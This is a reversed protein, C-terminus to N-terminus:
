PTPLISDTALVYRILDHRLFSAREEALKKELREM